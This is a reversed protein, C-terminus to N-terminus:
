VSINACAAHGSNNNYLVAAVDGGALPRAWLQKGAADAHLRDGATASADQDIAIM